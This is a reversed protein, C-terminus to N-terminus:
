NITFDKIKSLLKAREEQQVSNIELQWDQQMYVAARPNDEM